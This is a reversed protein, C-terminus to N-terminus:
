WRLSGMVLVALVLLITVCIALAVWFRTDRRPLGRGASVADIEVPTLARRPAPIAPWVVIPQRVTIRQAAQCIGAPDVGPGDQRAVASGTGSAVPPPFPRSDGLADGSWAAGSWAGARPWTRLLLDHAIEVTAGARVILRSAVFAELVARWGAGDGQAGAPLRVALEADSIRQRTPEGGATVATLERFLRPALRRGSEPLTEYVAEAMAAVLHGAGGTRRYGGRTLETGERREWLMLLTQSLLPLMGAGSGGDVPRFETLIEEVLGDEITLGAAAAPATIMRSLEAVPIPDVAFRATRLIPGLAPLAACRDLHDDRVALLVVGAGGAGPTPATMAISLLASLYAARQDQGDLKSETLTFLEEFQDVVLILRLGARSRERRGAPLAAHHARAAQRALHRAQSPRSALSGRAAPVDVGALSALQCALEDLPASTPTIVLQPWDAAGAVSLQGRAIAPLLGARVLSTKGVGSPGTVMLMELTGLRDDVLRVLEATAKERGHFFEEHHEDFPLMGRYPPLRWRRDGAEAAAAPWAAALRDAAWGSRDAAWGSGEAGRARTDVLYTDPGGQDNGNVPSILVKRAVAAEDKGSAKRRPRSGLRSETVREWAEAWVFAESPEVGLAIVLRDLVDAPMLTRGALYNALSSKPVGSLTELDQLSLRVKGRKRAAQIRLRNLGDLVDQQTRFAPGGVVACEDDAM